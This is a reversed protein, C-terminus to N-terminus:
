KAKTKNKESEIFIYAGNADSGKIGGSRHKWSLIKLLNKTLIFIVNKRDMLLNISVFKKNM